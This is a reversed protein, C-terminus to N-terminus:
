QHNIPLQIRRINLYLDHLKKWKTSNWIRAGHNKGKNTSSNGCLYQTNLEEKRTIAHFYKTVITGLM